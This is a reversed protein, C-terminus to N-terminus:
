GLVRPHAATLAAEAITEHVQYASSLTDKSGMLELSVQAIGPSGSEM